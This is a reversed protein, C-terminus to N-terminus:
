GVTYQVSGFYNGAYVSEPITLSYVANYLFTGGSVGEAASCLAVPAAVGTTLSGFPGGATPTANPNLNPPNYPPTGSGGTADANCSISGVQLYKPAIVGNTNLPATLGSANVATGPGTASNCFAVIGSCAANPNDGNAGGIPTAIFTGTLTWQDLPSGRNDSIYITGPNNANPVGSTNGTAATVTQELGDLTISPFQFEPCQQDPALTPGPPTAAPTVYNSPSSCSIVLQGGVVNESFPQVVPPSGINVTITGANPATSCVPTPENDCANFTFSLVQAATGTDVLSVAGTAANTLTATLTGSPSRALVV